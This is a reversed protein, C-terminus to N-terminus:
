EDQVYFLHRSKPGGLTRRYFYKPKSLVHDWSIISFHSCSAWNQICFHPQGPYGISSGVPNRQTIMCFTNWTPPLSFFGPYKDEVEDKELTNIRLVKPRAQGLRAKLHTGEPQPCCGSFWPKQQSAEWLGRLGKDIEQLCFRALHTNDSQRDKLTRRSGVESVFAIQMGKPKGSQAKCRTTGDVMKGM